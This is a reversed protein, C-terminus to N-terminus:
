GGFALVLVSVAAIIGIIVTFITNAAKALSHNRPEHVYDEIIEYMGIRMHILASGILVLALISVIPNSFTAAMQARDAGSLSVVLWILFGVFVINIAGTVRQRIFTGTGKEGSHTSM